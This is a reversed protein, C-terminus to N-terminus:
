ASHLCLPERIRSIPQWIWFLIESWCHSRISWPLMMSPEKTCNYPVRMGLSWSKRSHTVHSSLKTADFIYTNSISCVSISIVNLPQVMQQLSNYFSFCNWIFVVQRNDNIVFHVHVAIEDHCTISLVCVKCSCGLIIDPNILLNFYCQIWVFARYVKCPILWWKLSFHLFFSCYVVFILVPYVLLITYIIYIFQTQSICYMLMHCM